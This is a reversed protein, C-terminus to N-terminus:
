TMCAFRESSQVFSCTVNSTLAVDYPRVLFRSLSIFFRLLVLGSSCNLPNENVLLFNSTCIVVFSNQFGNLFGFCVLFELFFFM